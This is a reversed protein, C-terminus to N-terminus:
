CWCRRKWCRSTTTINERGAHSADAAGHWRPAAGAGRAQAGAPQRRAVALLQRTLDEAGQLAAEAALYALEQLPSPAAMEEKLMELNGLVIGSITSIM